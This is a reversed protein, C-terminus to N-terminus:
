PAAAPGDTTASATGGAPTGTAIATRTGFVAPNTPEAAQSCASCNSPTVAHLADGSTPPATCQDARRRKLRDVQDIRRRKARAAAVDVRAKVLMALSKAKRVQLQLKVESCAPRSPVQVSLLLVPTARRQALLMEQLQVVVPMAAPTM